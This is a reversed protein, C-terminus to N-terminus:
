SATAPARDGRLGSGRRNRTQPQPARLLDPAIADAFRRLAAEFDPLRQGFATGLTANAPRQAAWGMESAPVAQILGTDLDLAEAVRRGFEAWSLSGANAVHRVGTEGDILMNLTTTVLDPVYTPSVVLDNSAEFPRGSKLAGLAQTVFNHKDWPGFFSSTRIVLAQPDAQLVRQEAEAKSRGYVGLPAVPDSEVYPAGKSGDFVLDTSFTMFRLAHRICALALINPGLTNGDMCNEIDTEADDVRV